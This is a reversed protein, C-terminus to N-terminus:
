SRRGLGFASGFAGTGDGRSANNRWHLARVNSETDLGGFASPRIHDIEWGHDSSRNGHDSWKIAHGYDDRRWINQDYGIIPTAKHWAAIKLRDSQLTGFIGNSMSTNRSILREQPKNCFSGKACRAFNASPDNGDYCTGLKLTTAM